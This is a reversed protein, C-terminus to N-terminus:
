SVPFMSVYLDKSKQMIQKASFEGSVVKLLKIRHLKSSVKLDNTLVEDDCALLMKGNIDESKFAETYQKMGMADLLNLVQLYTLHFM